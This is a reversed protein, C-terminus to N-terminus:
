SLMFYSSIRWSAVSLHNYMGTRSYIVWLLLLVLLLLLLLFFLFGQTDHREPSPCWPSAVRTEGAARGTSQCCTRPDLYLFLHTTPTWPVLQARRVRVPRRSTVHSRHVWASWGHVSYYVQFVVFENSHRTKSQGFLLKIHARTHM